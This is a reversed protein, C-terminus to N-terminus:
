CVSCYKSKITYEHGKYIDGVLSSMEYLMKQIQDDLMYSDSYLIWRYIGVRDIDLEIMTATKNNM